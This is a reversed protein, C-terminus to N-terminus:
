LLFFQFKSFFPYPMGAFRFVERGSPILILSDKDFKRCINKRNKLFFNPPFQPDM